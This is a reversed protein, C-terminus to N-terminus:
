EASKSDTQGRKMMTHTHTHTHTQTHTYRHKHLTHTSTGPPVMRRCVAVQSHQGLSCLKHHEADVAGEGGAHGDHAAVGLHAGPSHVHHPLFGHPFYARGGHVSVYRVCPRMRVCMPVCVHVWCKCQPCKASAEIWLSKCCGHQSLTCKDCCPKHTAQPPLM